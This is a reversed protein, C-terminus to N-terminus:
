EPFQQVPQDRQGQLAVLQLLRGAECSLIPVEAHKAEGSEAEEGADRMGLRRGLPVSAAARRGGYPDIAPSEHRIFKERTSHCISLLPWCYRFTGRLGSSLQTHDGCPSILM